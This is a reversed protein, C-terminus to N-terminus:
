RTGRGADEHTAWGSSSTEPIHPGANLPIVRYTHHAMNFIVVHGPPQFIEFERNNLHRPVGQPFCRANPDLFQPTPEAHRQLVREGKGGGM